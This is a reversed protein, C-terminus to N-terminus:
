RDRPDTRRGFTGARHRDVVIRAMDHTWSLQVEEGTGPLAGGAQMVNPVRVLVSGVAAAEVTHEVQDGLFVTGALRGTIRAVAGDAPGQAGDPAGISVREPRIAVLAPQGVPIPEDPMLGRLVTGDSLRVAGSAGSEVVEGAFFNMQGIFSAVWSDVPRDYLVAPPGDQLIRGDRMVAVRDAMSFAENQDHTVFIFTIGVQEQLRKLEGQMERRLKLDLAGLPEDLLLVTPRNVLARALAVRQQQGGSLEWVRRREYGTLRVLDLAETVM